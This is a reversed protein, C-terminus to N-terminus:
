RVRRTPAFEILARHNAITASPGVPPWYTLGPTKPWFQKITPLDGEIRYTATLPDIFGVIKFALQAFTFIAGYTQFRAPPHVGHDVLWHDGAFVEAPGDWPFFGAWSEKPPLGKKRVTRRHDVPVLDRLEPATAAILAIGTKMAWFGLLQKSGPSLALPRGKAMPVLLPIVADELSKFHTNCDSCFIRARHSAFSIPQKRPTLDWIEVTHLFSKIGLRRSM